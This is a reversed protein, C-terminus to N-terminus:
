KKFKENLLYKFDFYGEGCLVTALSASMGRIEVTLPVNGGAALYAAIEGYVLLLVSSLAAAVARLPYKSPQILGSLVLLLVVVGFAPMVDKFYGSVVSSAWEGGGPTDANNADNLKVLVPILFAIFSVVGCGALAVCLKKDIRAWKKGSVFFKAVCLTVVLASIVICVAYNM